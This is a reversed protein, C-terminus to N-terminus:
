KNRCLYNRDWRVDCIKTKDLEKGGASWSCTFWLPEFFNRGAELTTRAEGPALLRSTAIAIGTGRRSGRRGTGVIVNPLAWSSFLQVAIGVVVTLEWGAGVIANGVATVANELLAGPNWSDVAFFPATGLVAVLYRVTGVAEPVLITM